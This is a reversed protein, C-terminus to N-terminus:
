LIKKIFLYYILFSIIIICVIFITYRNTPNLINILGNLKDFHEKILRELENINTELTNIM